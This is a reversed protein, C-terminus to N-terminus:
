ADMYSSYFSVLTENESEKIHEMDRVDKQGRKAIEKRWTGVFTKSVSISILYYKKITFM